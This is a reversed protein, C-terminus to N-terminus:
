VERMEQVRSANYREVSRLWLAEKAEPDEVEARKQILRDLEAEVM